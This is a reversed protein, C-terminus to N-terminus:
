EDAPYPSQPQINQSDTVRRSTGIPSKVKAHNTNPRSRTHSTNSPNSNIGPQSTQNRISGTHADSRYPTGASILGRASDDMSDRMCLDDGQTNAM